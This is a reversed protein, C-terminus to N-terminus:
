LSKEQELVLRDLGCISMALGLDAMLEYFCTMPVNDVEDILFSLTELMLHRFILPQSTEFCHMDVDQRRSSQSALQLIHPAM